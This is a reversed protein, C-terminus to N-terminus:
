DMKDLGIELLHMKIDYEWRHKPRGLPGKREAMKIFITHANEM